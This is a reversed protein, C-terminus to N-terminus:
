PNCDIAIPGRGGSGIAGGQYSTNLIASRLPLLFTSIKVYYEGQTAEACWHSYRM